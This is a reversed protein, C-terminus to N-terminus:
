EFRQRQYRHCASQNHHAVTADATLFVWLSGHTMRPNLLQYTDRVGYIYIYCRRISVYTYTYVCMYEKDLFRGRVFYDYSFFVTYEKARYTRAGCATSIKWHARLNNDNSTDMTSDWLLNLMDIFSSYRRRLEATQFYLSLSLSTVCRSINLRGDESRLVINGTRNRLYKMM